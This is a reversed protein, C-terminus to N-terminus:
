TQNIIIRESNTIIARFIWFLSIYPLTVPPNLLAFIFLSWFGIITSSIIPNHFKMYKYDTKIFYIILLILSLLGIYGTEALASFFINHPHTESIMQLDNVWRFVSLNLKKSTPLYDYFNGLGIGFFPSLSVMDISQKWLYTRKTITAYEDEGPTILRDLSNSGFYTASIVYGTYLIFLLIVIQLGYSSLKRFFIHLGLVLSFLVMIFQSRFNSILAFFSVAFIILLSTIKYIRDRSTYFFYLLFPILASDYIDIFYRERQYNMFLVDWYQGYIFNKLTSLIAAPQFYIFFEYVANIVVTLVLVKILKIIKDKSDLIIVSLLFIVIGVLHHKYISFFAQPNVAPIISLSLSLFYFFIYLSLKNDLILRIKNLYILVLSFALLIMLLYRAISHSNFLASKIPLLYVPPLRILFIAICLLQFNIIKYIGFIKNM